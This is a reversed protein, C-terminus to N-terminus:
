TAIDTIVDCIKFDTSKMFVYFDLYRSVSVNIKEEFFIMLQM